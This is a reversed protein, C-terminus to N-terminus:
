PTKVWQTSSSASRLTRPFSPYSSRTPTRETARVNYTSTKDTSSAMPAYRAAVMAANLAPNLSAENSDGDYYLLGGTRHPDAWSNFPKQPSGV